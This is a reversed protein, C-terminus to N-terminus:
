VLYLCRIGPCCLLLSVLLNSCSRSALLCFPGMLNEVEPVSILFSLPIQWNPIVCFSFLQRSTFKSADYALATHLQLYAPSIQLFSLLSLPSQISDQPTMPKTMSIALCQTLLGGRGSAPMGPSVTTEGNKRLHLDVVAGTKHSSSNGWHCWTCRQM